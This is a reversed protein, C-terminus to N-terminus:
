LFYQVIPNWMRWHVLCDNCIDSQLLVQRTGLFEKIEKMLRFCWQFICVGSCVQVPVPPLLACQEWGPLLLDHWKLELWRWQCRWARWVVFRLQCAFQASVFWTWWVNSAKTLLSQLVCNQPPPMPPLPSSARKCPLSCGVNTLWLFKFCVNSEIDNFADLSPSDGSLLSNEDIKLFSIDNM